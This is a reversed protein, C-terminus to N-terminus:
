KSITKSKCLKWINKIQSVIINVAIYGSHDCAELITRMIEGGLSHGLETGEGVVSFLQTGM